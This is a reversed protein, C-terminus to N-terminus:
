WASFCFLILWDIKKPEEGDKNFHEDFWFFINMTADISPESSAISHGDEPYNYLKSKVGQSRLM